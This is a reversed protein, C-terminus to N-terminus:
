DSNNIGTTTIEPTADTEEEMDEEKKEMSNKYQQQIEQLFQQLKQLEEEAIELIAPWKEQKMQLEDMVENPPHAINRKLDHIKYKLDKIQSKVEDTMEEKSGSDETGENDGHKVEEKSKNTDTDTNINKTEVTYSNEQVGNDTGISDDDDNKM